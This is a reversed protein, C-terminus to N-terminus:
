ASPLAGELRPATGAGNIQKCVGNFVEDVTISLICAKKNEICIDLNCNWCPTRHYLVVHNNGRPFWEGPKARASFIAVCPVGMTAALHMPGSDHCVMAVAHRLVAASVRPAPVGCLNLKPGQWLALLRESREREEQVGFMVLPLDPYAAALRRILSTWNPEEWDNAQKKTGVSAALYKGSIGGNALLGDAEAAEEKNLRLDWWRPDAMDVEGLERVSALTRETESRFLNTGAIPTCELHERRFPVGLVRPIGSLRFFLYDRLSKLFGGKPKALYILCDYDGAKLKGRLAMLEKINRLSTPYRLTDDYLNMNRLISEMPAAKSNIPFSTLLTIHADPYAKRVLHYAPLVILTDGLSGVRYVIVRPRSKM